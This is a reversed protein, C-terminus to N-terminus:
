GNRTSVPFIHHLHCTLCRIANAAFATIICRFFRSTNRAGHARQDGLGRRIIPLEPQRQQDVQTIRRRNHFIQRCIPQRLLIAHAKTHATVLKEAQRDPRRQQVVDPFCGRIKLSFDCKLPRFQALTQFRGTQLYPELLSLLQIHMERMRSGTRLDQAALSERIVKRGDDACM